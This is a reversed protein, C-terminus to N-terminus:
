FALRCCVALVAIVLFGSQFACGRRLSLTVLGDNSFVVLSKSCFAATRRQLGFWCPDGSTSLAPLNVVRRAVFVSAFLGMAATGHIDGQLLFDTARRVM